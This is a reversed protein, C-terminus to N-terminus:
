GWVGGFDVEVKCGLFDFVFCGDRFQDAEEWEKGSLRLIRVWEEDPHVILYYGIGQEAYIRSKVNLDHQATNPSLVEMVLVPTTELFNGGGFDGCVIVMDPELVTSESIRYNIELEPRCKNCVKCAALFANAILFNLMQHKRSPTPAMAYPIGSVIEWKGEWKEWDGIRYHPLEEPYLKRVTGM